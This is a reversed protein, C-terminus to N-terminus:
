GGPGYGRERWSAEESDALVRHHERAADVISEGSGSASNGLGIVRLAPHGRPDTLQRELARLGRRFVDATSTGLEDTLRRLRDQDSPELYVQVRESMRRGSGSENEYKM